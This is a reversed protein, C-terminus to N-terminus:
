PNSMLIYFINYLLSLKFIFSNPKVPLVSLPVIAFARFLSGIDLVTDQIMSVGTCLYMSHWEKTILEKMNPSNFKYGTILRSNLSSGGWPGTTQKLSVSWQETSTSELFSNSWSENLLIAEAVISSLCNILLWFVPTLSTLSHLYYEDFRCILIKQHPQVTWHTVQLPLYFCLWWDSTCKIVLVREKEHTERWLNRQSRTRRKQSQIVTRTELGSNDALSEWNTYDM